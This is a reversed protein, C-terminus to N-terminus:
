SFSMQPTRWYRADLDANALAEYDLTGRATKGSNLSKAKRYSERNDALKRKHACKGCFRQIGGVTVRRCDRCLRTAHRKPAAFLEPWLKNSPGLFRATDDFNM